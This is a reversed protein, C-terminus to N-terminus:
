ARRMNRLVLLVLLWKPVSGTDTEGYDRSGSKPERERLLVTRVLQKVSNIIGNAPRFVIMLFLKQGFVAELFFGSLALGWWSRNQQM